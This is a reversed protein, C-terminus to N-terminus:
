RDVRLEGAEILRARERQAARLEERWRLLDDHVRIIRRAKWPRFRYQRRIQQRWRERDREILVVM